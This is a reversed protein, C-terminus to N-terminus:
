KRPISNQFGVRAFEIVAGIAWGAVFAMIAESGSLVYGFHRAVLYFGLGLTLTGIAGALILNPRAVTSGVATSVKDVVPNHIVKSFSRSVPNMEKQIHQMTRKFNADLDRKHPKTRPVKEAAVRERAAKQRKEEEHSVAQELAEHRASEVNTETSRQEVAAELQKEVEARREKGAAELAEAQAETDIHSRLKETM